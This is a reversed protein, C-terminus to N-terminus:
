IHALTFNASAQGGATVALQQATATHDPYQVSIEWSGAAVGSISYTGSSNTTGQFLGRNVRVTAGSVPHNTEDFVSGFVTGSGPDAGVRVVVHAAAKTLHGMTDESVVHLVWIGDALNSVLLQKQAIPLATDAATPITDGFHDLVYHVRRFNRDDLSQPNDWAFYPNPNPYWTTPSTHSTSRADPAQDNIRVHFRMEVTSLASSADISALHIWNDGPQFQSADVDFTEEGVFTGEAPAPPRYESQDVSHLYGQASTFPREHAITVKDFGDNYVLTPDPHTSSTLQLPPRRGETVTGIITGTNTLTNGYLLRVRGYGSSGAGATSISGTITITDGAIQIGGGSGGDPDGSQAVQGAALLQGAITVNNKAILHLTGGGLTTAPASPNSCAYSGGRGGVSGPEVAADNESGYPYAIGDYTTGIFPQGYNASQHRPYSYYNYCSQGRTNTGSPAVAIAAGAEVTINDAVITLDGTDATLTSNNGVTFDGAVIVTGHYNENSGVDLSPLACQGVQCYTTCTETSDWGTGGANCTEVANGHCRTAGPTCTPDQCVGGSCGNACAEVALWATGANNCTEVDDNPGCRFTHPSCFTSSGENECSASCGDDAMTNGDDCQESQDLVGDGCTASVGSGGGDPTTGDDDGNHGGGSSGCAAVLLLCLVRKM